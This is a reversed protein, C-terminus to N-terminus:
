ILSKGGNVPITQGTIFENAIVMLTAQAVEEVRGLRGVPVRDIASKAIGSVMETSILSPAVSNVTVGDAAVRM